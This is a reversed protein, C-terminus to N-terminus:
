YGNQSDMLINVIDDITSPKKSPLLQAKDNIGSFPSKGYLKRLAAHGAAKKYVSNPFKDGDKASIVAQLEDYNLTPVIAPIEGDGVNVSLETSIGGDPRKIEGFFGQAKPRKPNKDSKEQYRLGYGYDPMGNLLGKIDAMILGM